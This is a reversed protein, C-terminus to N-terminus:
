KSDGGKVTLRVLRTVQGSSERPLASKGSSLNFRSPDGRLSAICKCIKVLERTTRFELEFVM